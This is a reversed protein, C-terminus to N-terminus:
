AAPKARVHSRPTRAQMDSAAASPNGRPGSWERIVLSGTSTTRAPTRMLRARRRGLDSLGVLDLLSLQNSLLELRNGIEMPLLEWSRLLRKRCQRIQWTEIPQKLCSLSFM